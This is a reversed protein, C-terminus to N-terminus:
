SKMSAIQREIRELRGELDLRNSERLGAVYLAKGAEFGLERLGRELPTTYGKGGQRPGLALVGCLGHPPTGATALPVFFSFGSGEPPVVLNGHLLDDRVADDIALERPSGSGSPTERALVLRGDTETTYATASALNLQGAVSSVLTALLEGPTLWARVELDLLDSTENFTVDEPRMRRDVFRQIRMRLPNFALIPFAATVGLALLPSVRGALKGILRNVVPLIIASMIALLTTLTSYVLSRNIVIDIDWLRHKLLALGIAVALLAYPIQYGLASIQWLIFVVVGSAGAPRRGLEGIVLAAVQSVAYGVVVSALALVFWKIQEREAPTAIRRYRYVQSAFMAVIMLLYIVLAPIPGWNAPRAAPWFWQAITWTWVIGVLIRSHRPVWQGSPYLFGLFTFAAAFGTPVLASALWGWPSPEYALVQVSTTAAAGFMALAISAFYTLPTGRGHVILVVSVGLYVLLVIIDLFILYGIIPDMGIGLSALRGAVSGPEPSRIVKCARPATEGTRVTLAVPSDARGEIRESLRAPSPNKEVTQGDIAVLVDGPLIGALASPTGPLVKTLVVEGARNIQAEVGGLSVTHQRKSNAPIAVIVLLVTLTLIALGVLRLLTRTFARPAAGTPAGSPRTATM